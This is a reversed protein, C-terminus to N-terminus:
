ILDRIARELYPRMSEVWRNAQVLQGNAYVDKKPFTYGPHEKLYLKKAMQGLSLHKGPKRHEACFQQLCIDKDEATGLQGQAPTFAATTIMDKAFMKDRDSVPFGLDQLAGLTLRAVDTAAQVRARKARGELEVM